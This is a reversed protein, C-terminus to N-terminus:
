CEAPAGRDSRVLSVSTSRRWWRYRYAGNTITFFHTNKKTICSPHREVPCVFLYFVRWRRTHPLGALGCASGWHATHSAPAEALIRRPTYIISTALLIKITRGLLGNAAFVAISFAAFPLAPPQIYHGREEVFDHDFLFFDFMRVALDIFALTRNCVQVM